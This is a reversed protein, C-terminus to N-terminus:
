LLTWVRGGIKDLDEVFDVAGIEVAAKPMGYVVCTGESQAVTKLGSQKAELMAEAGDDGMGTLMVAIGNLGVNRAMSRFLVDVSPKHRNVLPGDMVRVFYGNQDKKVQMHRNGPAILVLGQRCRDGDVAEKVTVHCVKDLRSAFSRTFEEPMHQVIVTSPADIPFTKLVHELAVPGGTSAGIAIIQNSSIGSQQAPQSALNQLIQNQTPMKSRAVAKIVERLEHSLDGIGYSGHPKGLVEVAGAHMAELAKASGQQTLSSIIIVPMPHHKMLKKLFTIGDMRPMEIDLTIVDPKLDLIMDRAVYPDPATGVIEIEPDKSLDEQLVRRVMASDDVILVKAVM